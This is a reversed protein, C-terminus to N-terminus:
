IHISLIHEFAQAFSTDCHQRIADVKSLQTTVHTATSHLCVICKTPGNLVRTSQKTCLNQNYKGM